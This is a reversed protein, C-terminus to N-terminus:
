FNALLKETSQMTTKGDLVQFGSGTLSQEFVHGSNTKYGAVELEAACPFVVYENCGPDTISIELGYTGKNLRPLVLDMRMTYEGCSIKHVYKDSDIHGPVCIAITNGERDKLLIEISIRCVEKAMLGMSIRLPHKTTELYVLDKDSNNIKIDTIEITSDKVVQHELISGLRVNARNIYADICDRADSQLALCGKDLLIGRTCLHSVTAMNHSVFLITRGEKGVDEMKGLCKKQFQADGV